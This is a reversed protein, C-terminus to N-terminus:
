LNNLEKRYTSLTKEILSLREELKEISHGTSELKEIDGQIRVYDMKLEDIKQQMEQKSM